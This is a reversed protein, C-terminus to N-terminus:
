RPPVAVGRLGKTLQDIMEPVDGTMHIRIVRRGLDLLAQRDGLAEAEKLIGFSVSSKSSGLEDPIPLDVKDDSTIQVFFGRGADGKHLQGTSHLFRPGYGVTTALKFSGMLWKRLELLAQDTLDTPRVYAQIAIYAGPKAETLFNTLMAAPTAGEADGYVTVGETTLAPTLSPLRHKVEYDAIMKRALVKASEVNPQDFPNVGIIYGAVATAMEWLFFQRGLEYVDHVRLHVVPHGAARLKSLAEEDLADAEGDLQLSVFLRDDGYTEPAGIRERTVPLIGKGEKGTSEAILQEVWNGFSEIQPSIAFTVKDRGKKALEGLIAGLWAGPNDKPDVSPECSSAASMAQGLLKAVDVGMLAAPVLGDYSLVSYRGGINPDNLIKSRFGNKDAVSGLESGPDTIMIFHGGAKEHGVSGVVQAYFYKMLSLTEVTGGSKSSVIFLTEELNIRRFAAMVTDPDTSDLVTLEPYGSRKGFVKSFVDPALSSGGMGLLVIQTYGASRVDQVLDDFRPLHELMMEPSHLWDLRNSIETPEPKWVSYDHAWIRHIIRDAAMVKLSADVVAQYPGLDASEHHLESLLNERKHSIGALIADLSRCSASVGEDELKAAIADLGIGARSLRELDAAARDLGVEITDPAVHGHDLVARLTRPTVADVTDPGILSDVYLTDPYSANKTSTSAWLPRQVRAGMAKLREWRPTSLMEKFKAQALKANAIAIRGRLGNEGAKELERDVATDVRSVFFSAVSAVKRLNGGGAALAELGDIYAGAVAEYRAVSFILTANVNIGEGVLARAARIGADTAPIRVMVNPRDLKYFLRRAQEVMADTDGALKPSVEVSVYGDSGDLSDYVPRLLDAARAVDGLMLTEFIEEVPKDKGVLDRLEDDYDVSGIAGEFISPNSTVGRLGKDILAQMDGSTIFSRRLYDYWISQGQAIFDRITPL